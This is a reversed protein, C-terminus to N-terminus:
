PHQEEVLVKGALAPRDRLAEIENAVRYGRDTVIRELNAIRDLSDSLKERLMANEDALADARKKADGKEETDLPYGHRARIWRDVLWGGTSIGMIGLVFLDGSVSM